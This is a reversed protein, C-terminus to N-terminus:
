LRCPQEGQNSYDPHGIGLPGVGRQNCRIPRDMCL